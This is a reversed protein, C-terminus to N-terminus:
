TSHILGVAQIKRKNERQNNNLAKTFLETISKLKQQVLAQIRLYMDFKATISIGNHWTFSPM